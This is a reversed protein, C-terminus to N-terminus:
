GPAGGELQRDHEACVLFPSRNGAGGTPAETISSAALSVDAGFAGYIIDTGGEVGTGDANVRAVNPDSLTLTGIVGLPGTWAEASSCRRSVPPALLEQSTQCVSRLSATGSMALLLLASKPTPLSSTQTPM